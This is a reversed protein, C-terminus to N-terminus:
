NTADRRLGFADFSMTQIVAGQDDTIADVSGLHDYHLYDTYANGSQTITTARPMRGGEVNTSGHVDHVAITQGDALINHRYESFVTTHGESAELALKGGIGALVPM